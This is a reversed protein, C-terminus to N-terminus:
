AARGQRAKQKRLRKREAKSLRRRTAGDGDEYDDDYDGQSGDGWPTESKAAPPKAQRGQKAQEVPKSPTTTSAAVRPKAPQSAKATSAKKAPAKESEDSSNTRKAAPKAPAAVRGDAEQVIRRTYALLAFLVFVLSLNTAGCQVAEVDSVVAPAGGLSAVVAVIAALAAALSSCAALRSEKLDLFARVAIVGLVVVSPALWWVADGPLATWGVRTAALSALAGHLGTALCVSVLAAALSASMWWRYVGRMDDSRHRRLGFVVVCMAAIALMAATTFWAGLSADSTHDIIPRVREGLSAVIVDQYLRGAVLAVGALLAAFTTLTLSLAGIPLVRRAVGFSVSDPGPAYRRTAGAPRDTSESADAGEASAAIRGENLVRRRRDGRGTAASM